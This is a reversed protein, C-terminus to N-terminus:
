STPMGPLCHLTSSEIETMDKVIREADGLRVQRMRQRRSDILLAVYCNGDLPRPGAVAGGYTAAFTILLIQGGGSFLQKIRAPHTLTGDPNTLWAQGRHGYHITYGDPLPPASM